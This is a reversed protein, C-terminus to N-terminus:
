KKIIGIGFFHVMSNVGISLKNIEDILIGNYFHYQPNLIMQDNIKVPYSIFARLGIGFRSSIDQKNHFEEKKESLNSQSFTYYNGDNFEYLKISSQLGFNLYLKKKIALTLFYYNFSLNIKNFKAKLTKSYSQGSESIDYSGNFLDLSFAYYLNIKNNEFKKQSLGFSLGLCPNFNAKRHVSTSGHTIYNIRNALLIYEKDQAFIFNSLLLFLLLLKIKIFDILGVMM